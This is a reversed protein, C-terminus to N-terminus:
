VHARGIKKIVDLVAAVPGIANAVDNAGHAFAVFCASLIQLYVFMKEVTKYDSTKESVTTKDKVDQTLSRVEKLLTSVKGRTDELTNAKVRQLHKVAKELSVINQPSRSHSKPYTTPTKVKKVLFYSVVAAVLGLLISLLVVHPFSLSINVNELGKFLLILSFVFFVTFMLFPFLKSRFLM